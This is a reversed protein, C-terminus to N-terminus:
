AHPDPDADALAHLVDKRLALLHTLSEDVKKERTKWDAIEREVESQALDITPGNTQAYAQEMGKELAEYALDKNQSDRMLVRGISGALGLANENLAERASAAADLAKHSLAVASDVDYFHFPCNECAADFDKGTLKIQSDFRQASEDIEKLVDPALEDFKSLATTLADIEGNLADIKERDATKKLQEARERIDATMAKGLLKFGTKLSLEGLKAAAEEPNGTLCTAIEGMFEFAAETKEAEETLETAEKAHAISDVKMKIAELSKNMKDTEIKMLRLTATLSEESRQLSDAHRADGRAQGIKGKNDQVAEEVAACASKPNALFDAMPKSLLMHDLMDRTDDYRGLKSSNAALAQRLKAVIALATAAGKQDRAVLDGWPTKFKVSPLSDPMAGDIAHEYSAVVQMMATHTQTALAGAKSATDAGKNQMSTSWSYLNKDLTAALSTLQKGPDDIKHGTATELQDAKAKAAQYREMAKDIDGRFGDSKQASYAIAEDKMKRALAIQDKTKGGDNAKPGDGATEARSGSVKSTSGAAGRSATKGAVSSTPTNLVKPDLNFLAAIWKDQQETPM